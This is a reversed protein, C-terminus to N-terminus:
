VDRWESSGEDDRKYQLTVQATTPDGTAYDTLMRLRINEEKGVTDDVDQTQRWTAASESGNDNRFRFGEQEADPTPILTEEISISDIGIDNHWFQASAPPDTDCQISIRILTSAHSILATLDVSKQHWPTAGTAASTDPITEDGGNNTDGTTLRTVWGAGNENTQVLIIPSAETGRACWHFLFTYDNLAANLTNDWEMIFIDGASQSSMETYIYGASTGEVTEGNFPGVGTSTTEANEWSWRGATNPAAVNSGATPSSFTWDTSSAAETEFTYAFTTM